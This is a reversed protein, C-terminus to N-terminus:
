TRKRKKKTHKKAPPPTALLRRLAMRPDIGHLSLPKDDRRRKAAMPGM